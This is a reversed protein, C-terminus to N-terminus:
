IFMFGGEHVINAADGCSCKKGSENMSTQSNGRKLFCVSSHKETDVDVLGNKLALM